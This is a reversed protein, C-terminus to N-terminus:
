DAASFENIMVDGSFKTAILFRSQKKVIVSNELLEALFLGIEEKTFNKNYTIKIYDCIDDLNLGSRNIQLVQKIYETANGKTKKQFKTNITKNVEKKPNKMLQQKALESNIRNM